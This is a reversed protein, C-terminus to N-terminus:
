SSAKRNTDGKKKIFYYFLSVFFLLLLNIPFATIAKQLPNNMIAQFNDAGFYFNMATLGIMESVLILVLVTAISKIADLAPINLMTICIVILAIMDFITHVGFSIPLLRVLYAIITVIVGIPIFQKLVIKRRSFTFIGFTLIFAQFCYGLIYEFLIFKLMVM